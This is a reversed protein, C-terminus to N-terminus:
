AKVGKVSVGLKKLHENDVEIDGPIGKEGDLAEFGTQLSLLGVGIATCEDETDSLWLQAPRSPTSKCYVLDKNLKMWRVMFDKPVRTVGFGLTKMTRGGRLKVFSEDNSGINLSCILGHPLKCGVFVTETSGNRLTADEGKAVIRAAQGM